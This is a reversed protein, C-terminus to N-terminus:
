IKVGSVILRLFARNGLGLGADAPLLNSGRKGRLSLFYFPSVARTM